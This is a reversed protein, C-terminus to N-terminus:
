DAEFDDRSAAWALMAERPWLVLGLTPTFLGAEFLQRRTASRHFVGCDPDAAGATCVLGGNALIVDSLWTLHPSAAHTDPSRFWSCAAFGRVDNQLRMTAAMRAYSRLAEHESLAVNPRRANLHSFFVPGLGRMRTFLFWGVRWMASRPVRVLYSRPIGSLEWDFQGAPFRRLTAKKAMAVFTPRTADFDKDRTRGAFFQFEDCILDSVVSPLPLSPLRAASEVAANLLLWREVPLGSPLAARLKLIPLRSEPAESVNEILRSAARRDIGAHQATRQM